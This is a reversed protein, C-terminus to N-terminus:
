RDVRETRPRADRRKGQQKPTAAKPNHPSAQPDIKAMEQRLALRARFLRSKVTGVPLAMVLSIKQYDMGDIDRLVLVARLDDQLNDMAVRLYELMEKQQVRQAPGPERTDALAQRLPTLQDDGMGRKSEGSAGRQSSDLSTTRRIRQKRLHTFSLNMAIRVMWTSIDSRGDFGCIHEIIKLMAQQTVEAADDRNGVMRLVVNYLRQQYTTLLRSLAAQDGRVAQEVLSPNTPSSKM